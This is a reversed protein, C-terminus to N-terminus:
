LDTGENSTNGTLFRAIFSEEERFFHEDLMVINFNELWDVIFELLVNLIIM